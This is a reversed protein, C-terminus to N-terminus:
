GERFLDSFFLDDLYSRREEPTMKELDPLAWADSASGLPEKPHEGEPTIKGESKKKKM